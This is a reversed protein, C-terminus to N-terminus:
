KTVVRNKGEKKAEYLADDARKLIEKLTDDKKLETLGFSATVKLDEIIKSEEINKRIKELLKKSGNIDTEPCLILFEEGGWRGVYDVKRISEKLIKAIKILVEDGIQHGYTDNIDKFNDIDLISFSFNHNFRNSRELENQVIEDLKHRNYLNTLRDKIALNELKKQLLEKSDLMENIYNAMVRFELFIVDDSNIRLNKDSAKEFFNIFDNISKKTKRNWLIMLFLSLLLLVISTIAIIAIRYRHEEKKKLSNYFIETQIDDYYSGGAIIWEWDDISIVYSFKDSQNNTDPKQWKYYIFDGDSKKSAKIMDKVVYNGDPDRFNSFDEGVIQPSMPNMIVIGNYTTAFLYGNKGYRLENLRNLVDKQLIKEYDKLYEAAGIYM